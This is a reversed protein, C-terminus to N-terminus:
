GKCVFPTSHACPLSINEPGTIIVLQGYLCKTVEDRAVDMQVVDFAPPDEALYQLAQCMNM